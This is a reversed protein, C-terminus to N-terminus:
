VEEHLRLELITHATPPPTPTTAHVCSCPLLVVVMIEHNHSKRLNGHSHLHKETCTFAHIHAGTYIYSGTVKHDTCTGRPPQTQTCPLTQALSHVVSSKHTGSDPHPLDLPTHLGTHIPRLDLTRQPGRHAHTHRCARTHEGGWFLAM